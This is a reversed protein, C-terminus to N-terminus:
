MLTIIKYNDKLKKYCFKFLSSVLNELMVPVFKDSTVYLCVDDWQGNKLMQFFSTTESKPLKESSTSDGNAFYNNVSQINQFPHDLQLQIDKFRYIEGLPIISIMKQSDSIRVVRMVRIVFRNKIYVEYFYGKKTVTYNNEKLSSIDSQKFCDRKQIAYTQIELNKALIDFIIMKSLIVQQTTRIQFTSAYPKVTVIEGNLNEIMEVVGKNTFIFSLINNELLNPSSDSRLTFSSNSNSPYLEVCPLNNPITISLKREKPSGLELEGSANTLDDAFQSLTPDYDCDHVRLHHKFDLGLQKVQKSLNDMENQQEEQLSALSNNDKKRLADLLPRVTDGSRMCLVLFGDNSPLINNDFPIGVVHTCCTAGHKKSNCFESKRVLKGCGLNQGDPIIVFNNRIDKSPFNDKLASSDKVRIYVM